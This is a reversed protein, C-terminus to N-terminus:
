SDLSLIPGPVLNTFNTFYDYNVLSFGPGPKIGPGPKMGPGPENGTGAFGPGPVKLWGM